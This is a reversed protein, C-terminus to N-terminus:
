IFNKSGAMDLYCFGVNGKKRFCSFFTSLIYPVTMMLIQVALLLFCHTKLTPYHICHARCKGQNAVQLYNRVSSCFTPVWASYLPRRYLGAQTNLETSILAPISPCWGPRPFSIKSSILPVTIPVWAFGAVTETGVLCFPFSWLEHRM